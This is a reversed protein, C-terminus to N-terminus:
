PTEAQSKSPAAQMGCRITDIVPGLTPDATLIANRMAEQYEVAAAQRDKPNQASQMKTEATQVAPAQRAIERAKEFKDKEAPPLSQIVSEFQKRKDKSPAGSKLNEKWKNAIKQVNAALEPDSKVMSARVASRFAESAEDVKKKLDQVEPDAMAADRAAKFRDRLEEPIAEMIKQEMNNRSNQNLPPMPPKGAPTPDSQAMASVSVCLIASFVATPNTFKM